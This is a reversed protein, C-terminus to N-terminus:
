YIQSICLLCGMGSSNVLVMGSINVILLVTLKYQM